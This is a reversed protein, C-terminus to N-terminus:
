RRLQTGGGELNSQNLSISFSRELDEPSLAGASDGRPLRFDSGSNSSRSNNLSHTRSYTPRTSPRNRAQQLLNQQTDASGVVVRERSNARSRPAGSGGGISETRSHKREHNDKSGTRSRLSVSQSSNKTRIADSASVIRRHLSRPTVEPTENTGLLEDLRDSNFGQGDSQKKADKGPTGTGSMLKQREDFEREVDSQTQPQGRAREESFSENTQGISYTDDDSSNDDSYPNYSGEDSYEDVIGANKPECLAEPSAVIDGRCRQQKYFIHGRSVMLSVFCSVVLLPFVASYDGGSDRAIEIGGIVGDDTFAGITL